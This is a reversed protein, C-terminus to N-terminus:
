EIRPSVYFTLRGGQQYELDVRVPAEHSYRIVTSGAAQAAQLMESFYELSYASRDPSEIELDLLSGREVSLELEAKEIDGEGRFFLREGEPDAELIISDAIPEVTRVAERFTTGTLRATVTYSLKPEPLKEYSLMIQPISFKRIGRGHFVVSIRTGDISLELEDDKKARRLIKSLLSFSVGFEAQDSDIEYEHFADRPYYLDVMAVRSTDLARLSLGESTAVFVGEDIIKEISAVMYRWTRADSFRFRFM